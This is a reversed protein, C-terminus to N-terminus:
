IGNYSIGDGEVATDYEAFRRKMPFRNAGKSLIYLCFAGYAKRAPNISRCNQVIAAHDRDRISPWFERM